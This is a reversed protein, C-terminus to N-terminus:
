QAETASAHQVGADHLAAEANERVKTSEEVVKTRKEVELDHKALIAQVDAIKAALATSREALKGQLTTLVMNDFSSRESQRKALAGPMAVLFAEEMDEMVLVEDMVQGM